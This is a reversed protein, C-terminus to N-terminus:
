LCLYILAFRPFYYHKDTSNDPGKWVQSGGTIQLKLKYKYM